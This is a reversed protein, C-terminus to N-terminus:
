KFDTLCSADLHLPCIIFDNIPQHSTQCNWAPTISSLEIDGILHSVPFTYRASPHPVKTQTLKKASLIQEVMHLMFPGTQLPFMRVNSSDPHSALLNFHHAHMPKISPLEKM